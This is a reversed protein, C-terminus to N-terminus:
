GYIKHKKIDVGKHYSSLTITLDQIRGTPTMMKEAAYGGYNLFSGITVVDMDRQIIDEGTKSFGVKGVSFNLEKHTHGTILLDTNELSQIFREAKNAASGILQGGGSGHTIVINYSPRYKGADRQAEKGGGVRVTLFVINPRYIEERKLRCLVTYLPDEDVIRSRREHNGGTAAIIQEAFPLLETYLWEKQAAPTMSSEYVTHALRGRAVGNDIMDGVLIIKDTPKINEKYKKWLSENFMPSGIHLDGIPKLVVDTRKPTNVIVRMMDNLM